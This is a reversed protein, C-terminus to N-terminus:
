LRRKGTTKNIAQEIFIMCNLRTTKTTFKFAQSCPWCHCSTETCYVNLSQWVSQQSVHHLSACTEKGGKLDTYTYLKARERAMTHDETVAEWGM